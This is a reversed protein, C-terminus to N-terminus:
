KCRPSSLDRQGDRWQTASFLPSDPHDYSEGELFDALAAAEHFDPLPYDPVPFGPVLFDPVPFDPLPFGPLPLSYRPVVLRFRRPITVMLLALPLQLLKMSHANPLMSYLHRNSTHLKKKDYDKEFIM